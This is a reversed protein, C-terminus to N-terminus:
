VHEFFHSSALSSQKVLALVRRSVESAGKDLPLYSLLLLSTLKSHMQSSDNELRLILDDVKVIDYFHINRIPRIVLLLNVMALRVAEVKDHILNSLKPLYSKMLPHSNIQQSTLYSFSNIAAVRVHSSSCDFARLGVKGLLSKVTEFPISDWYNAVIRAVGDIALARIKIDEDDLLSDITDFQQQLHNDADANQVEGNQLPFIDLFLRTANYRVLLECFIIM